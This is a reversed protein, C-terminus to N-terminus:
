SKDHKRDWLYFTGREVQYITPSLHQYSRAETDTVITQQGDRSIVSLLEQRRQPDLESLVDDLLIIPPRGWELNLLNYTALKLSLAIARHQGQSAFTAASRGDISLELDDRHPGVLSVLRLREDTARQDLAAQYAAESVIPVSSGGYHFKAELRGGDTIREHIESASAILPLLIRDREKWLYFGHSILAPTFSQVTSALRPDKLARNRQLLAHQYQRLVKEYRPNLASLTSDLFRRRDSPSGKSLNLDDPNFLVVPIKPGRHIRSRPIKSVRYQITEQSGQASTLTASMACFEPGGVPFWDHDSGTRFSRGQLVLYLAELANTKGQANNGVVLTLHPALGLHADRINRFQHIDLTDVHM